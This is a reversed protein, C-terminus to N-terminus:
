NIRKEIKLNEELPSIYPIGLKLGRLIFIIGFLIILVPYIRLLFTRIKNPLINGFIVASFMFPLTGLGFFFMFTMGNFMGGSALSATLAVYVAGCPLFGNLIGTFFRSSFSKKQLFNGLSIKIKIMLRDFFIFKGSFYKTFTPIVVILIMLIGSIISIVGQYGALNFSEGIIGLVLGFFSYTVIRGFQYLLNQVYFRWNDSTKLGLSFAIPGCMGLCHFGSVIGLSFAASIYTLEM